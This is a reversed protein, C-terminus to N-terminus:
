EGQSDNKKKKKFFIRFPLILLGFITLAALVIVAILSGILGLGAGPGIYALSISTTLASSTMLGVLFIKKHLM